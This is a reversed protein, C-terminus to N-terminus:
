IGFVYAFLYTWLQLTGNIQSPFHAASTWILMFKMFFIAKPLWTIDFGSDNLNENRKVRTLSRSCIKGLSFVIFPFGCVFPYILLLM